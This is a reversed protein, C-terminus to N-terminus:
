ERHWEKIPNLFTITRPSALLDPLREEYAKMSELVYFVREKFEDVCEPKVHFQVYFSLHKSV